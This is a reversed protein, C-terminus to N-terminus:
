PAQLSHLFSDPGALELTKRGPLTELLRPCLSFAREAAARAAPEEGLDELAVAALLHLDARRGALDIADLFARLAVAPQAAGLARAGELRLEQLRVETLFAHAEPDKEVASELRARNAELPELEADPASARGNLEAWRRAWAEQARHLTEVVRVTALGRADLLLDWSARGGESAHRLTALNQPLDLFPLTGRERERYLIWPDADTLPRPVRPWHEGETVLRAICGAPEQMGIDALARWLETGEEPFRRPDLTPRASGGLLIVQSGYLFVGSWEFSRTFADLVADFAAPSLAHPPVWQCLLGGPALARRARAYFEPTYLHVAYPSDPLLPEMTLVDLEGELDGLTRRGDGLHLVVREDGVTRARELAAAFGGQASEAFLPVAECVRRSIELVDIREVEPHLAVAGATTGTGLALVAVRRPAPHLLLPLHGLVRMYLYAPGSATARFDDTLLTREDRVADDVVSVAFCEDESFFRRQFAPNDLSPARLAPSDSRGAVLVGVLSAAALALAPGRRALVLGALAGVGALAALSGSTGLYPMGARHLLPLGVAAGLAEYLLLDGLRRGSEGAVVRHLLPLLAGFPFLAPVVIWAAQQWDARGAAFAHVADPAALPWLTAIVCLTLVVAIGSRKAPLLPALLAAGLALAALACVLVLALSRQMGGLWLVAMRLNIWELGAAWATALALVCGARALSLGDRGLERTSSARPDQSVSAGARHAAAAVAAALASAAGAGCAGMWRGTREPVWQGFFAAGLVCGALNAAFLLANGRGREGSERLLWPLYAGQPAATVAVALVALAVSLSTSSISAAFRLSVLASPAGVLSVLALLAYSRRTQRSVRGASWAGLSWAALWLALGWAASRDFGLAVGAGSLLLVELGMGGAGALAAGIALSSIRSAGSARPM